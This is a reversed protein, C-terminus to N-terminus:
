FLMKYVNSRLHNSDSTDRWLDAKCRQIVQVELQRGTSEWQVFVGVVAINKSDAVAPTKNLLLHALGKYFICGMYVCGRINWRCVLLQHHYNGEHTHTHTHQSDLIAKIDQCQIQHLPYISVPASRVTESHFTRCNRRKLASLLDAAVRFINLYYSVLSKQCKVM